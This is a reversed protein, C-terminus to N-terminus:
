KKDLVIRYQNGLKGQHASIVGDNNVGVAIPVYVIHPTLGSEKYQQAVEMALCLQENHNRCFDSKIYKKKDLAELVSMVEALAMRKGEYFRGDSMDFDPTALKQLNESCIADVENFMKQIEKRAKRIPLM